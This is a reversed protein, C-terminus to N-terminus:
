RDDGRAGNRLLLYAGIGLAAGVIMSLVICGSFHGITMTVLRPEGALLSLQIV